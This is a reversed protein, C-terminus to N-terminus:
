VHRWRQTGENGCELAQCRPLHIGASRGGGGRSGVLLERVQLDTGGLVQEGHWSERYLDERQCGRHKEPGASPAATSPQPRGAMRRHVPSALARRARPVRLPQAYHSHPYIVRLHVQTYVMRTGPQCTRIAFARHEARTCAPAFTAAVTSPTRTRHAVSRGVPSIQRTRCPVHQTPSRHPTRSPNM